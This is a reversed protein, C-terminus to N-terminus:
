PWLAAAQQCAGTCVGNGALTWTRFVKPLAELLVLYAATLGASDIEKEKLLSEIIQQAQTVAGLGQAVEQAYAAHGMCRRREDAESHPILMSKCYALRTQVFEDWLPQSESIALGVVETASRAMNWIEPRVTTRQHACGCLLLTLLAFFVYSHRGMGSNHGSFTRVGGHRNEVM